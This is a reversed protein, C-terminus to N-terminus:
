RKSSQKMEQRRMPMTDILAFLEAPDAPRQKRWKVTGDKGILLATFPSKGDVEYETRLKRGDANSPVQGHISKVTGDGAVAFATMDRDIMGDREALLDRAQAEVRPDGADAFVIFVRNNDWLSSMALAGNTLFAVAGALALRLAKSMM